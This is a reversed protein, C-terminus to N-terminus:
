TKMLKNLHEFYKTHGKVINSCDSNIIISNNPNTGYFGIPKEFNEVSRYLWKLILDNNSYFNFLSTRYKNLNALKETQSVAAGLFTIKELERDPKQRNSIMNAIVKCGLSHGILNIQDYEELYKDIELLLLKSYPITNKKARVWNGPLWFDETDWVFVAFSSDSIISEFNNLYKARKIVNKPNSSFGPVFIFIRKNSGKRVCIITNKINLWNLISTHHNIVLFLLM